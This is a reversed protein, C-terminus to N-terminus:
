RIHHQFSLCVKRNRIDKKKIKPETVKHITDNRDTINASNKIIYKNGLSFWKYKRRSSENKAKKINYLFIIIQAINKVVTAYLIYFDM